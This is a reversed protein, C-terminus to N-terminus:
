DGDDRGLWGMRGEDDGDNDHDWRGIEWGDTMMKDGCRTIM